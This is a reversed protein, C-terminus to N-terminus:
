KYNSLGLCTTEEYRRGKAGIVQHDCVSFNPETTDCIHLRGQGLVGQEDAMTTSRSIKNHDALDSIDGLTTSFDSQFFHKEIYLSDTKRFQASNRLLVLKGTGQEIEMQNNLSTMTRKGQDLERRPNVDVSLTSRPPSTTLASNIPEELFLSPGDLKIRLTTDVQDVRQRDGQAVSCSYSNERISFNIDGNQNLRVLGGPEQEGKYDDKDDEAIDIIPISNLTNQGKELAIEVEDKEEQSAEEEEEEDEEEGDEEIGEEEEYGYQDENNPGMNQTKRLGLGRPKQKVTYGSYFIGKMGTAPIQSRFYGAVAAAAATAAAIGDGAEQVVGSCPKCHKIEVPSFNPSCAANSSGSFSTEERSIDSEMSYKVQHTLPHQLPVISQTLHAAIAVDQSSPPPPSSHPPMVVMSSHLSSSLDSQLHPYSISRAFAMESCTSAICSRPETQRANQELGMLNGNTLCKTALGDYIEESATTATNNSCNGTIGAANTQSFSVVDFVAKTDQEELLAHRRIPVAYPYVPSFHVPSQHNQQLQQHHSHSPFAYHPHPALYPGSHLCTNPPFPFVPTPPVSGLLHVMDVALPPVIGAPPPLLGATSTSAVGGASSRMLESFNDMDKRRKAKTLKRNRTQIVEKKMSIPRNIQLLFIHCFLDFLSVELYM